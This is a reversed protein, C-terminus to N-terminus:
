SSAHFVAAFQSYLEHCLAGHAAAQPQGRHELARWPLHLHKLKPLRDEHMCTLPGPIHRFSCQHTSSHKALAHRPIGLLAGVAAGARAAQLRGDPDLAGARQSAAADGDLLHKALGPLM